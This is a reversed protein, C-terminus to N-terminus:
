KLKGEVADKLEELAGVINSDDFDTTHNAQIDAIGSLTEKIEKLLAIIEDAQDERMVESGEGGM